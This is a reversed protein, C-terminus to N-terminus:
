YPAKTLPAVGLMVKIAHDVQRRPPLYEPLEELMVDPFKELVQKM